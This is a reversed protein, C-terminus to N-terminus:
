ASPNEGKRGPSLFRERLLFDAGRNLCEEESDIRRFLLSSAFLVPIAVSLGAVTTFLAKWIGGTVAAATIQGGTRLSSFMEVMGLVTGLLGLLPTTRGIVELLSMNKEWRFIERRIQQEVVLKMNEREATWHDVAAQFLRHLSSDSSHVLKKAGEMDGRALHTRFADELPEPAASARRFFLLREVAVAFAAVSLAAIIWMLIGGTRMMELM